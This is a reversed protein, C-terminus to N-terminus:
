GPAMEGTPYHLSLEHQLRKVQGDKMYVNARITFVGWGETDIRFKEERNKVNRVPNAFTSHLMWEVFDVQDLAADTGEVWVAWKWWDEGEYHESQRIELERSM